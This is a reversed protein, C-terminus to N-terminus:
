SLKLRQLEFTATVDSTNVTTVTQEVNVDVFHPQLEVTGKYFKIADDINDVTGISRRSLNPTTLYFTYSTMINM